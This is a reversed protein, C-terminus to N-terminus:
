LGVVTTKLVYSYTKPGYIHRRQYESNYGNLGNFEVVKSLVNDFKNYRRLMQKCKRGETCM